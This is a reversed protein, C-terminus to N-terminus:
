EADGNIYRSAAELTLRTQNGGHAPIYVEWGAQRDYRQVIFVRGNASWCELLGVREIRKQWMCAAHHSHLWDDLMKNRADTAAALGRITAM